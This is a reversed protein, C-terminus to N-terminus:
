QCAGQVCIQHTLACSVCVHGARGCADDSNGAVCPGDSPDLESTTAGTDMMCGFCCQGGYCQGVSLDTLMPGSGDPDPSTCPYDAPLATWRCRGAVCAVTSCQVNLLSLPYTAQCEADQSCEVDASSTSGAADASGAAGGSADALADDITYTTRAECSALLLMLLICCYIRM